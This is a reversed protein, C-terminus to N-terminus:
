ESINEDSKEKTPEEAPAPEVSKVEKEPEPLVIESAEKFSKIVARLSEDIDSDVSMKTPNKFLEYPGSINSEAGKRDIEICQYEINKISYTYDKKVADFTLLYSLERDKHSRNVQFHIFPMKQRVAINVYRNTTDDITMKYDMDKYFGEAWVIFRRQLERSSARKVSLSETYEYKKQANMPIQAFASSAVCLLAIVILNVRRM